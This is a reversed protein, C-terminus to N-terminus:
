VSTRWPIRRCDRRDAANSGGDTGLGFDSTAAAIAPERRHLLFQLPDDGGAARRGLLEHAEDDPLVLEFPLPRHRVRFEEAGIQLGDYGVHRGHLAVEVPHPRLELGDHLAACVAVWFSRVSAM